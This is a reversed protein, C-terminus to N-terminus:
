PMDRPAPLPVIILEPPLSRQAVRLGTAIRDNWRLPLERWRKGAVDWMGSERGDLTLYLLAIRGVRLFDVTREQGELTLKGPYAEISRGYGTEVQWAEVVRRYKEAPTVAPDDLMARLRDLRLGRERPLFPLDLEVFRALADVSRVLLPVIERRMVAAVRIERDLAAIERELDAIRAELDDNQARLADTESLIGRYEELMAASEASMKDIRAQSAAAERQSELRINTATDLPDNALGSGSALPAVFILGYCLYRSTIEPLM